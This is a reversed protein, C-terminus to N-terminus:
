KTAKAFSGLTVSFSIILFVVSFVMLAEAMTIGFIIEPTYGCSTEIQYLWPLWKELALWAPLGSTFGCESFIFGRETGLLQYCREVLAVASLLISLHAISNLIPYKNLLLAIMSIVILLSIWMRVQICMVCPLEDLIHQYALAVTLFMLGVVITIIWYWSSHAICILTDIFRQIYTTPM